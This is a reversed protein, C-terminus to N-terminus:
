VIWISLSFLVVPLSFSVFVPLSFSVPSFHIWATLVSTLLSSFPIYRISSVVCFLLMFSYIIYWSIFCINTVFPFTQRVWLFASLIGTFLVINLDNEANAAKLFVFFIFRRQKCYNKLCYFNLYRFKFTKKRTSYKYNLMMPYDTASTEPSSCIKWFM